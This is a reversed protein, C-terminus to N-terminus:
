SQLYEWTPEVIQDPSFIHLMGRPEDFEFVVRPLGDLTTFEAIVTGDAQYSGGVKRARRRVQAQNPTM